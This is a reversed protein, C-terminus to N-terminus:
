PHRGARPPHRVKKVGQRNDRGLPRKLICRGTTTLKHRRIITYRVTDWTNIGMRFAHDLLPLAEDEEMVWDQWKSSGYGATGLIVKSVYLGSTGVRTYSSDVPNSKRM